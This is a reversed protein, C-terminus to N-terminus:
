RLAPIDDRFSKLMQLLMELHQVNMSDPAALDIRDSTRMIDAAEGIYGIYRLLHGHLRSGRVGMAVFFDRLEEIGDKAMRSALWLDIGEKTLPSEIVSGYPAARIKVVALVGAALVREVINSALEHLDAVRRQTQRDAVWWAGIIAIAAGLCSGILQASSEPLDYPWIPLRLLLGAGVGALFALWTSPRALIQRIMLMAAVGDGARRASVLNLHAPQGSEQGFLLHPAIAVSFFEQNWAM